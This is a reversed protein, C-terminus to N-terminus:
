LIAVRDFINHLSIVWKLIFSGPHKWKSQEPIYRDLELEFSVVNNSFIDTFSVSVHMKGM